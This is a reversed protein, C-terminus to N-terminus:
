WSERWSSVIARYPEPAEQLVTHSTNPVTHVALQPLMSHVFAEGEEGLARQDVDEPVIVLSPVDIVLEVPAVSEALGGDGAERLVGDATNKLREASRTIRDLSRGTLMYQFDDIVAEISLQKLELLATFMGAAERRPPLPPDELLLAEISEPIISAIRLAVLAGLSHGVLIVKSMARQEILALVDGAYESLGYGKDPKSSEGHGRLDILITPHSTFPSNPAAFLPQFYRWDDWIGHLAIVSTGEGDREAIHITVGTPLQLHQHKLNM